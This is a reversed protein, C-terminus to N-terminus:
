PKDEKLKIKDAAVLTTSSKGDIRIRFQRKEFNVEVITANLTCRMGKHFSATDFEKNTM